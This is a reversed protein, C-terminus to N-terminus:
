TQRTGSYSTLIAKFNFEAHDIIGVKVSKLAKLLISIVGSRFLNALDIKRLNTSFM